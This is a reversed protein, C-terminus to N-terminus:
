GKIFVVQSIGSKISLGLSGKERRHSGPEERGTRKKQWKRKRRLPKWEKEGPQWCGVALHARSELVQGEEQKSQHLYVGVQSGIQM